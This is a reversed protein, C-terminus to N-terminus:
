SIDVAAKVMLRDSFSCLHLDTPTVTVREGLVEQGVPPINLVDFSFGNFVDKILPPLIVGLTQALPWAISSLLRESSDGAPELRVIVQDISKIEARLAMQAFSLGLRVGMPSPESWAKYSLGARPLLGVKVGASAEAAIGVSLDFGSLDSSPNATLTGVRISARYDAKGVSFSATGFTERSQGALPRAASHAIQQLAERSLLVYMSGDPLSAPSPAPPVPKGSLNAAAVARGNGGALVMPGFQIGPFTLVPLPAGQLMASAMRLAEPIIVKRYILRDFGSAQSFDAVAAIPELSIQGDRAALTCIMTVAVTASDTEGSGKKRTVSLKPFRALFANEVPEVSAGDRKVAEKWQEPSPPSLDLVPPEQVEWGVTLEVGSFSGVQSGTLLRSKIGPKTALTAVIRNLTEQDLCIVLDSFSM